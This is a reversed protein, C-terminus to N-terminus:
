FIRRPNEVIKPRVNERQKLTQTEGNGGPNGSTANMENQYRYEGRQHTMWRRFKSCDNPNAVPEIGISGGASWDQLKKGEGSEVEVSRTREARPVHGYRCSCLLPGRDKM